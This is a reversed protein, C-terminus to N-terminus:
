PKPRPAGSQLSDADPLPVPPPLPDEGDSGAESGSGPAAAAARYRRWSERAPLRGLLSFAVIGCLKLPLQPWASSNSRNQKSYHQCLLRFRVRQVTCLQVQSRSRLPQTAWESDARRRTIVGHSTVLTELPEQWMLM